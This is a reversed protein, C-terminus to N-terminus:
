MPTGSVARRRWRPSRWACRSPATRAASRGNAVPTCPPASRVKKLAFQAGSDADRVLYVLSFGGEGLLKLVEYTRGNLKVVTPGGACGLCWSVTGLADLAHGLPEAAWRPLAQVHM